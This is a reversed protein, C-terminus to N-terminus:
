GGDPQIAIKDTNGEIVIKKEVDPDGYEGNALRAALRLNELEAHRVEEQVKKVDLARHMLKFDELIPHTGPLAEIYLQDSPVIVMQETENSLLQVMVDVFNDENAAFTDPAKAKIGAMAAELTPRCIDATHDPDSLFAGSTDFDVYNHILYWTMYNDFDTLPFIMYNGKFGILTDIDAVQHLKRTQESLTPKPLAVNYTMRSADAAALLDRANPSNPVTDSRVADVTTNHEFVPVDLNYIRFYRQDAPEHTWIAQMYHIINDKVHLRLRDIDALMGFHRTAAATYKDTAVQLATIETKMQGALDTAKAQARDLAENAFELRARNSTGNDMNGAQSIGLPDFFSEVFKGYEKNRQDNVSADEAQTLGVTAAGLSQNALMVQQSLKDVVSKQHQVAMELTILAIEEGTYNTALYELAPLFSDDLIARKLIWDHRVLWAQDIENPAPVDNAVMIVPTARYLSDSVLYRRQLEYFLYTVTLEDNPNRLERYSTAEDESSVDTTVDMRHQDRFEQASKIVSERQDRKTNKSDVGQDKGFHTQANVDYVGIKFSGSANANFDTKENANSFIEADVRQMVSKDEKSSRLSEDLEKANRSKKTVSKTTYKQVEGAGLPITKVLSGVQYSQPAWKQRYNLLLGYNVSGPAFVDFLYREKLMDSLRKFLTEIEPFKLDSPVFTNGQAPGPAPQSNYKSRLNKVTATATDIAAVIAPSTVSVNPPLTTADLDQPHFLGATIEGTFTIFKNQVDTVQNAITNLDSAYSQKFTASAANRFTNLEDQAAIVSNLTPRQLNSIQDWHVGWKQFDDVLSQLFDRAGKLNLIIADFNADYNEKPTSSGTPTTVPPLGLIIRVDNLFSELQDIGGIDDPPILDFAAIRAAATQSLKGQLTSIIESAADLASTVSAGAGGVGPLSANLEALALQLEAQINQLELGFSSKFLESAVTEIQTIVVISTQILTVATAAPSTPNGGLNGGAGQAAAAAVLAKSKDIMDSAANLQADYQENALDNRQGENMLADWKAYFAQATTGISDDILEAWADEFAIQLRYYDHYAVADSAGTSLELPGANPSAAPKWVTPSVEDLKFYKDTDVQYGIKGLDGILPNESERAKQNRWTWTAVTFDRVPQWVHPPVPLIGALKFLKHIDTQLGYKGIDIDRVHQQDRAESDAWIWTAEPTPPRIVDEIAGSDSRAPTVFSVKTEPTTMDGGLLRVENM